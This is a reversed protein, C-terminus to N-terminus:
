VKGYKNVPILDTSTDISRRVENKASRIKNVSFVSLTKFNRIEGVRRVHCGFSSVKSFKSTDRSKSM